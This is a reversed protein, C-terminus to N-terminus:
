SIPSENVLTEEPKAAALFTDDGSSRIKTPPLVKVTASITYNKLKEKPLILFM